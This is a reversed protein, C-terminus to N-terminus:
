SKNNSLTKDVPNKEEITHAQKIARALLLTLSILSVAIIRSALKVGDSIYDAKAALGITHAWGLCASAVAIGALIPITFVPVAKKDKTM